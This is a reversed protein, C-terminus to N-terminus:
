VLEDAATCRIRRLNNPRRRYSNRTSGSPRDARRRSRPRSPSSSRRPRWSSGVSRSPRSPPSSPNPSRSCRARRRRSTTSSARRLVHFRAKWLEGDPSLRELEQLVHRAARHEETADLATERTEDEGGRLPKYFVQEEAHMHPLLNAKLQELLKSRAAGGDTEDIKDLIGQVTEHEKHLIDYITQDKM